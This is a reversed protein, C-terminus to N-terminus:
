VREEFDFMNHRMALRTLEVDGNVSLKEFIRYRYSNVTKPSVSLTESIEPVKQCNVIMICIQLERESLSDFPTDQDKQDFADLAMQQAVQPCIYRKGQAVSRIADVMINFEVGKTVFGLAGAKMLRAPFPNDDLATVAVIKVDPHQRVIKKTAELGGMGPMKIDMLIVDPPDKRCLSIADEGSTAEGVVSIDEVDGLMRSIGTRVLDHDDAILVKITLHKGRSLM